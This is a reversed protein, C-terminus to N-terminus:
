LLQDAQLLRRLKRLLLWLKLNLSPTADFYLGNILLIGKELKLHQIAQYYVAEAEQMVSKWYIGADTLAFGTKANGWISLDALLYIREDRAPFLFTQSANRLKSSKLTIFDTYIPTSEQEPDLYAMVLPFLDATIWKAEQFALIRESLAIRNLDKCYYVVFFELLNDITLDLQLQARSEKFFPTPRERELQRALQQLRHQAAAQFETQQLQDWYADYNSTASLHRVFNPFAKLFARQFATALDGAWDISVGSAQPRPGHSQTSPQEQGCNFCFRAQDPLETQCNPCRKM